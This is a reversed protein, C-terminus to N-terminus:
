KAVLGLMNNIRKLRRSIIQRAAEFGLVVIGFVFSVFGMVSSISKMNNLQATKQDRYEVASTSKPTGLAAMEIAYLAQRQPRFDPSPTAVKAALAANVPMPPEARMKKDSLIVQALVYLGEPTDERSVSRLKRLVLDYQKAAVADTFLERSSAAPSSSSSTSSSGESLFGFASSGLWAAGSIVAMGIFGRMVKDMEGQMVGLGIHFIGYVAGVGLLLPQIMALISEVGSTMDAIGGLGSGGGSRGISVVTNDFLNILKIPVDVTSISADPGLFFSAVWPVLGAVGLGLWIFGLRRTRKKLAKERGELALIQGKVDDNIFDLSM